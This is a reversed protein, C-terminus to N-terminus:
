KAFVYDASYAVSKLVGATSCSGSLTGGHTNLRYVLSAGSLAGAGQHEVVALKLRAIDADTAGPATAQVKGQVISGDDLAWHPGAYHRGTTKGDVLLSAIPERFSWALAGTKDAKCEYIQAGEAHAAFLTTHAALDDELSVATPASAASALVLALLPLM